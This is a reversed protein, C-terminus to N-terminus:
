HGDGDAIQEIGENVVVPSHSCIKLKQIKSIFVYEHQINSCCTAYNLFRFDSNCIYVTGKANLASAKKKVPKADSKMRAMEACKISM